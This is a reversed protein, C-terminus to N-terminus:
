EDFSAARPTETRVPIELDVFQLDMARARLRSGLGYQAPRDAVAEALIARVEAEM